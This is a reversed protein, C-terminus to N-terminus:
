VLLLNSVKKLRSFFQSQLAQSRLSKFESYAHHSLLVINTDINWFGFEMIEDEVYIEIKLVDKEGAPIFYITKVLYM